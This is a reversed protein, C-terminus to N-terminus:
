PEQLYTVEQDESQLADILPKGGEATVESTTRMSGGERQHQLEVVVGWCVSGQWAVDEKQLQKYHM